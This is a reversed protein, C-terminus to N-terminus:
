RWWQYVVSLCHFTALFLFCQYVCLMCSCVVAVVTVVAFVVAVVAVLSVAVSSPGSECVHSRIPWDTALTRACRLINRRLVGQELVTAKLGKQELDLSLPVLPSPSPGPTLGPLSSFPLLVLLCEERAPGGPPRTELDFNSTLVIAASAWCTDRSGRMHESDCACRIKLM